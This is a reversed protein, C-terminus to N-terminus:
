KVIYDWIHKQTSSGSVQLTPPALCRFTHLQQCTAPPLHHTTPPQCHITPSIMVDILIITQFKDNANGSSDYQM